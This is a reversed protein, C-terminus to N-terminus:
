SALYRAWERVREAEEREDADDAIEASKRRM